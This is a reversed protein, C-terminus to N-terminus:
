RHRAGRWQPYADDFDLRLPALSALPAEMVTKGQRLCGEFGGGIRELECDALVVIGNEPIRLFRM